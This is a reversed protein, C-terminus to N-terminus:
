RLTKLFILKKTILSNNFALFNPNIEIFPELDSLTEVIEITSVGKLKLYHVVDLALSGIISSSPLAVKLIQDVFPQISPNDWKIEIM